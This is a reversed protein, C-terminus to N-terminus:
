IRGEPLLQEQDQLDVPRRDRPHRHHYVVAKRQKSRAQLREGRTLHVAAASRADAVTRRAALRIGPRPAAPPHADARHLRAPLRDRREPARDSLQQRLARLAADPEPRPGGAPGTRHRDTHALLHQQAHQVPLAPEVPEQATATRSRNPQTRPAAPGNRGQVLKRDDPHSRKNGGRAPLPHRQRCLLAHCAAVPARAYAHRGHRATAPHIPFVPAALCDRRNDARPQLGSVPGSATHLPATRHAPLLEHLLGGHVLHDGAPLARVGPGADAPPQAGHRLATHRLNRGM